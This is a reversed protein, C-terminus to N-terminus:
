LGGGHRDQNYSGYQEYKKQWAKVGLSVGMIGQGSLILDIAGALDLFFAVAGAIAIGAGVCLAILVGVRMLSTTETGNEQLAKM